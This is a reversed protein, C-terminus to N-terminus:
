FQMM